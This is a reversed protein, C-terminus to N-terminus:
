NIDRKCAREIKRTSYNSNMYAYLMIKLMQTPTAQKKRLRSYTKYLESLNMEEVIQGLLRVSDDNPIMCEVNLPLKLQYFGGHTTYDKHTLNKVLM